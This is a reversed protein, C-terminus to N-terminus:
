KQDEHEVNVWDHPYCLVCVKTTQHLCYPDDKTYSCVCITIYDDCVFNVYGELHKWRVHDGVVFSDSSIPKVKTTANSDM